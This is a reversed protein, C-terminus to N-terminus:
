FMLINKQYIYVYVITKLFIKLIYIDHSKHYEVLLNIIFIDVPLITMVKINIIKIVLIIAM